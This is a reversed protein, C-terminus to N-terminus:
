GKRSDPTVFVETNKFGLNALEKLTLSISTSCWVALKCVYPITKNTSM